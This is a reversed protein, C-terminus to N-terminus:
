LRVKIQDFEQANAVLSFIDAETMVAGFRENIV